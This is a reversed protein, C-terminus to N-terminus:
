IADGLHSELKSKLSTSIPIKHLRVAELVAAAFEPASKLEGDTGYSGSHDNLTSLIGGEFGLEGAARVDQNHFLTEHKVADNPTRDGDLAIHISFDESVAYIYRWDLEYAEERERPAPISQLPEDRTVPHVVIGDVVLEALNFVRGEDPSECRCLNKPQREQWRPTGHYPYM